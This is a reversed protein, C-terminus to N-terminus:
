DPRDLDDTTPRVDPITGVSPSPEPNTHTPLVNTTHSIPTTRIDNRCVPCYCSMRFWEEICSRHYPHHCNRLQFAPREESWGDQCICCIRGAANEMPIVAHNIQTPTPRVVVPDWINTTRGTGGTGTLIASDLPNRLLSTLFTAAWQDTITQELNNRIPQQAPPLRTPERLVDRLLGLYVAENEFFRHFPAMTHRRVFTQRAYALDNLIHLIDDM